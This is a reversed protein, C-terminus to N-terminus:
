IIRRRELIKHGGRIAESIVLVTRLARIADDGTVRPRERTKVCRVFDELEERLPERGDHATIEPPTGWEKGQRVVRQNQYDVSIYCDDQFVKLTRRKEQELRSASLVATCGNEFELWARAIDINPTAISGGTANIYSLGSRVMSLVIDVDHIMLDLTVDVDIGRGLFPSLRECEIIRPAAIMGSVAVVGPNYRELHGVQLLLNRRQAEEVMDIADELRKTIPKEVLIDMGKRLCDVAIDHHTSTPTAISVADCQAILERYDDTSICGYKGAIDGASARDPDAVGVLSVDSLESYIRAHHRGLYGVGIVGVRVTM